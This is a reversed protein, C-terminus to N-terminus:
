WCQLLLQEGANHMVQESSGGLWQAFHTPHADLCPHAWGYNTSRPVSIALVTDVCVQMINSQGGSSSLDIEFLGTNSNDEAM